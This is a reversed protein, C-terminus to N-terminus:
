ILRTIVTDEEIQFDDGLDLFVLGPTKGVEISGFTDQKNLFKAGNWTAWRLLEGFKVEKHQQLIRMEELISLTGNSALSDTGLTINAGVEQLLAVDPLANEIYLNAKPCLCWYLNPHNEMAFAVDAATTFTNHVLLTAAQKPMNPLYYDLANKGRGYVPNNALGASAFFDFFDGKAKEFMMSEGVSEQSHITQLDEPTSHQAILSFLEESVSYPAHPVISSQLPLFDIKLKLAADIIPQSPRSFGFVEIFTHYYLPSQEKVRKSILENSIDGVAVIGAHYMEADANEMADIVDQPQQKRLALVQKIFGHLLTKQKIRGYLHSLELHCHTNVFGPVIIGSHYSVATLGLEKAQQATYINAITKDPNVAVVGNKIPPTSVPFVWNASFYKQM